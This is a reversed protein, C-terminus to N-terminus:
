QLPPPQTVEGHEHFGLQCTCQPIGRHRVWQKSNAEWLFNTEQHYYWGRLNHGVYWKGLPIALWQNRGLNLAETPPKQWLIGSNPSPKNPHPWDFPSEAPHFQDWFQMSIVDGLGFVIDSLLFVNLYMWCQNLVKLKPQQWGMQVFLRMLKIDGQQQLPYDAFDMM